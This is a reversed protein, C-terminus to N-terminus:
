WTRGDWGRIREVFEVVGDAFTAFLLEGKEPTANRPSGIHGPVTRDKTIWGRYAPEFGFGFDVDPLDRHPGVLQPSLRLIMSTEWECAHGMERHVFTSADPSRTEWYTAFLLLLDTRQRRRQRVEFVAQKGPTINGGHGNLIAIRRFGMALFQEMLGGLLDLYLRPEASLTGPFDLHHHSNGLWTLPAFLATERCRESARRVVEGLLLSDTFLPLHGGHQELAAVPIIVPIDRDLAEVQPWTLDALQM